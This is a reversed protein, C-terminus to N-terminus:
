GPQALKKPGEWVLSDQDDREHHHYHYDNVRKKSFLNRKLFECRKEFRKTIFIDLVIFFFQPLTIISSPWLLTDRLLLIMYHM